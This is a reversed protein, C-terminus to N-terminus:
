IKDIKEIIERVPNKEYPLIKLIRTNKVADGLNNIEDIPLVYFIEADAKEKIDLAKAVTKLLEFKDGGRFDIYIKKGCREVYLDFTHTIGSVGIITPKELSKWGKEELARKLETLMSTKREDVTIM